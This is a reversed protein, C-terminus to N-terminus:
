YGTATPPKLAAMGLANNPVDFHLFTNQFALGGLLLVDKTTSLLLADADDMTGYIPQLGEGNKSWTGAATSITFPVTSTGRTDGARAFELHLGLPTSPSTQTALTTGWSSPPCLVLPQALTVIAFKPPPSVPTTTGDGHVISASAVALAYYRGAEGFFASGANPLSPFVAAYQLPGAAMAAVCVSPPPESLWMMSALPKLLLSWQTSRGSAQLADLVSSVYTRRPFLAAVVRATDSPVSSTLMRSMGVQNLPAAFVSTAALLLFQQLVLPPAARLSAATQACPTEGGAGTTLTQPITVTDTSVTGTVKGQLGFTITETIGFSSYAGSAKPDYPPFVCTDCPGTFLYSDPSSTSVACRIRENSVIVDLQVIGTTLDYVVPVFADGVVPPRGAGGGALLVATTVVAAVVVVSVVCILVITSTRSLVVRGDM